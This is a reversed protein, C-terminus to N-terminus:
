QTPRIRTSSADPRYTHTLRARQAVSEWYAGISTHAQANVNVSAQDPSAPVSRDMHLISRARALVYDEAINLEDGDASLAVQFLQAKLRVLRGATPTFARQDFVLLPGPMAYWHSKPIPIVYEGLSDAMMLFTIRAIGTISSLSYEWTDAALTITSLTSSDYFMEGRVSRIAQNIARTYEAVQAQTSQALIQRLESLTSM